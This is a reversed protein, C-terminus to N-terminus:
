HVATEIATIAQKLFGGDLVKKQVVRVNEVMQAYKSESLNGFFDDLEELSNVTIGVGYATVFPAVAAKGWTVVPIGCAIYASLKHPNNYRLYEGYEGACTEISNGDWVLGMGEAIHEHLTDAQFSGHYAVGNEQIPGEWHSGFLDVTYNRQRLAQLQYVYGAKQRALNGAIVLKRAFKPSAFNVNSPLLYDFLELSIIKCANIGSEALFAKMRENHAILYDFGELCAIDNRLFSSAYADSRLCTLDHILAVSTVNKRKATKCISRMLPTNHCRFPYQILFLDEASFSAVIRKIQAAIGFYDKVVATVSPELSCSFYHQSFGLSELIRDADSRAKSGAHNVRPTIQDISHNM